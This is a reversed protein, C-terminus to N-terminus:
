RSILPKLVRKLIFDGVHYLDTVAVVSWLSVDISAIVAQDEM